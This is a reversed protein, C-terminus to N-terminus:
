NQVGTAGLNINPSNVLLWSVKSHGEETLRSYIDIYTMLFEDRTMLIYKYVGTKQTYQFVSLKHVYYKCKQCVSAGRLRCNEWDVM